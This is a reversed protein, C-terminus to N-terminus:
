GKYELVHLGANWDSLYIIGDKSVYADCSMAAVAQNPRPDILKGPVPPVWYAIEKPAFQDRIDFVRLGANHYTAFIVEESQFAGPRNEHLNHPGFNGLKCYDRDTPTPLTAIPVPNDSAQVDVVWTHFIGKACNDANSEDAVVALKRGPLPLPTHTGGPDPPSWNIHSLLKPAAPDSIDHITFGGDRWAAYGRDGATIMHHLAYRRGKPATSTEGAARNMGPLWWKSVIAPRTIDKLDVICLIHDTFGDFHASVYAYRGGVWWLRNIGLGPMELFAIERLEAPKSIDHISLGARFKKRNTISDALTNEFYGRANDYSQMAVINAGNAVLMMDGSVQIHHTRTYDGATWFGVPKLARPDAADLVTIGNSFMHGVYVHNRNVMVQVGDPRGGQDSYSIHKIKHGIGEPPIPTEARAAGAGIGTAFVGASLGRRTIGQM